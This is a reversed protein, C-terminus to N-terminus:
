LLSKVNSNATLALSRQLAPRAELSALYRLINKSYRDAFGNIKGLYLAYGVAIDAITFRHDCLFDRDQLHQDLLKLRAIFWKAYDEAVDPKKREDPELLM